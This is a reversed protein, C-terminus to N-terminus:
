RDATADAPLRFLLRNLPPEVRYLAADLARAAGAGLVRRVLDRIPSLVVLRRSRVIAMRREMDLHLRWKGAFHELSAHSWADSWRRLFFAVDTPALPPPTSYTVRSAPEFWVEGGADRVGMCFDLHERTSLLEPDLPGLKDFVETRALLCHFEVFDCPEAHLEERVDALRTGQLHHDTAMSRTGDGRETFTIRGGAVHIVEDRPDGEFYLPGVAWAGTEEARDVLADLWGPQVLADNDVFAVYPTLVHPLALNRAENPSLHRDSRLLHVRGGEAVGRLYDAIPAPAGGDVYIVPTDDPLHRLLTGLALESTSFRERPVVVVTTARDDM